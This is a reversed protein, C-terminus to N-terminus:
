KVLVEKDALNGPTLQAPTLFFNNHSTIGPSSHLLVHLNVQWATESLFDGGFATHDIDIVVIDIPPSSHGAEASNFSLIFFPILFLPIFFYRIKL